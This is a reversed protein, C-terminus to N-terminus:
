VEDQTEQRAQQGPENTVAEKMVHMMCQVEFIPLISFQAAMVENMMLVRVCVESDGATKPIMDETSRVPLFEFLRRRGVARTQHSFFVLQASGTGYLFLISLRVKSTAARTEGCNRRKMIFLQYSVRPTSSGSRSIVKM